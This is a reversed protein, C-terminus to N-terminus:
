WESTENLNNDSMGNVFYTLDRTYTDLLVVSDKMAGVIHELDGTTILSNDLLESIGMIQVVPSRVEHSIKHLVEKLDQMYKIRELELQKRKSVDMSLILIGEYIPQISLEFWGISEDQYIFKNEFHNSIRNDMCQQMVKFLRSNELGPFKEMMTYGLLEERSFKSQKVVTDNVYLYRWNFDIIQFGEMMNDITAHYKKETDLAEQFNNLIEILEAKTKESLNHKTM